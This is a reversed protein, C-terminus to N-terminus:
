RLGAIRAAAAVVPQAYLGLTLVALALLIHPLTMRWDAERFSDLRPNEGGQRPFWARVAPVLMYIATLLASILLAGIGAYAVATDAEAAATLLYWKSVFGYLPPIGTLALAGLSYCAFTVPMKRGLGGLETHYEIGTRCYVAGACFFTLIKIAAHAAMHILGAQLGAPILLLVGFLIYSLNAVTSYAMRKKWHVQKLAMVSGFLLTFCCLGLALMQGWSGRLRAPDFCFWSLRIVAFAGAKVVAVAHLLATVPTPAVTARPLWVHLPFVAAKVGFGLFGLLFFLRGTNEDVKGPLLGGLSFYGGAGVSLLWTMAAFGFAAGGLSFVLYSRTARLARPSMPYLVLPATALTLMEYFVYLSFLNGAMSVGLSMAYSLTFFGFFSGLRPKGELYAQAYIVTLPWLSALIGAFYRGLGDFRLCFTLADTFRLLIHPEEGAQLILTWVLVSSLATALLAFRGPGPGERDRFLCLVAGTLLPLGLAALFLAGQM